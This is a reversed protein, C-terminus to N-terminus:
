LNERLFALTRERASRRAAANNADPGVFGHGAGEYRFLEAATGERKLQAQIREANDFPVLPDALGHHIQARAVPKSATGIGGIEPFEPAFYEVLLRASERVRLSLHGGLSFGLLAVRSSDAGPLSRAFTMADAVVTRWEGAHRAIQAFVGVGPTTSTRALYEPIVVSFNARALEAAYDRIMAAWPEAMGDSGHAIVVTGGNPKAGPWFLEVPVTAGGSTLHATERMGNKVTPKPTM